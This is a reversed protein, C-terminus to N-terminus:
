NIRSAPLVAPRKLSRAAQEVWLARRMGDIPVPGAYGRSTGSIQQNATITFPHWAGGATPTCRVRGEIVTVTTSVPDIRLLFKTGEAAATLDNTYVESGAGVRVVANFIEGLLVRISGVTVWTDHNMYVTNGDDFDIAAYTDSGTRIRDGERVVMNPTYPMPQGSREIRVGPSTATLRAVIEVRASGGGSRGPGVTECGLLTLAVLACGVARRHPHQMRASRYLRARVVLSDFMRDRVNTM